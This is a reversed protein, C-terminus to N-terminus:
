FLGSVPSVSEVVLLARCMLVVADPSREVDGNLDATEDCGQAAPDDYHGVVELWQGREPMTIGSAPDISVKLGLGGFGENEDIVLMNYNINQCYLWGSPTRIACAGGLGADDPLKPWWARVTVSGDGHCALGEIQGRGPALDSMNMPSSPCDLQTTKLSIEGGDAGAVWGLWSPCEDLADPPPELCGSNPPIGLAALQYWDYGDLTVPGAVVFALTGDGALGGIREGELGPEERLEIDSAVIRVVSNPALAPGTRPTAIPSPSM